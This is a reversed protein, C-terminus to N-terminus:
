LSPKQTCGISYCTHGLKNIHNDVRIFRRGITEFFTLSILKNNRMVWKSFDEHSMGKKEKWYSKENFVANDWFLKM